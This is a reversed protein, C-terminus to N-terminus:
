LISKELPFDFSEFCLNNDFTYLQPLKGDVTIELLELSRSVLVSLSSDGSKKLMQQIVRWERRSAYYDRKYPYAGQPGLVYDGLRCPQYEGQSDKRFVPNAEWEVARKYLALAPNIVQCEADENNFLKEGLRLLRRFSDMTFWIHFDKQWPRLVSM